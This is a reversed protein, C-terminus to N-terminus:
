LAVRGMWDGPAFMEHLWQFRPKQKIERIIHKEVKECLADYEKDSMENKCGEIYRLFVAPVQISRLMKGIAETPMEGDEYLRYQNIGLGLITSMKSASLGYRERLAHIESPSPIDHKARYQSYVRELNAYDLEETTYLIGTDVDKISQHEYEFQERRYTMTRNETVLVAEGGTLM